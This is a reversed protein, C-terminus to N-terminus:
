RETKKSQTIEKKVDRKSTSNCNKCVAKSCGCNCCGTQAKDAKWKYRLVLFILLALIGLVIIDTM